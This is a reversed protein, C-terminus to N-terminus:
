DESPLEIKEQYILGKEEFKKEISAILILFTEIYFAHTIDEKSLGAIDEEKINKLLKMAKDIGIGEVYNSYLKQIREYYLGSIEISIISEHKIMPVDVTEKKSM